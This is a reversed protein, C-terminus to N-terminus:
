TSQSFLAPEHETIDEDHNQGGRVSDFKVSERVAEYTGGRIRLEQTDRVVSVDVRKDTMIDGCIATMNTNDIDVGRCNSIVSISINPVQLYEQSM